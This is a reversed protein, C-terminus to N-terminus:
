LEFRDMSETYIEIFEKAQRLVEAVKEKKAMMRGYGGSVSICAVVAGEANFLPTAM